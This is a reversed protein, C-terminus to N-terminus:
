AARPSRRGLALGVEQGTRPLLALGGQAPDCRALWEGPAGRRSRFVVRGSAGAGHAQFVLKAPDLGVTTIEGM